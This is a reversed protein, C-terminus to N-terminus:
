IAYNTLRQWDNLSAAITKLLAIFYPSWLSGYKKAINVMFRNNINQTLQVDLNEFGEEMDLQNTDIDSGSKYNLQVMKKDKIMNEVDSQSYEDGHIDDEFWKNKQKSLAIETEQDM